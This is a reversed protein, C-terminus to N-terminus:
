DYPIWKVGKEEFKSQLLDADEASIYRRVLALYIGAFVENHDREMAERDTGPHYDLPHGLEHVMGPLTLSFPGFEIICTDGDVEVGSLKGFVPYIVRFHRIPSRDRWYKTRAVWDYWGQAAEPTPSGCAPWAEKEAAYIKARQRVRKM